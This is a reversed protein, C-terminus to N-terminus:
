KSAARETLAIMTEADHITDVNHWNMCRRRIMGIALAVVGMLIATQWFGPLSFALMFCTAAVGLAFWQFRLMLRDHVLMADARTRIMPEIKRRKM